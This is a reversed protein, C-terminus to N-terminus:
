LGDRVLRGENWHKDVLEGQITWLSMLFVIYFDNDM